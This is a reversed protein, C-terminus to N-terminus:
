IGVQWTKDALAKYGKDVVNMKIPENRYRFSDCNILRYKSDGAGPVNWYDFAVDCPRFNDIIEFMESEWRCSALSEERFEFRRGNSDDFFSGKNWISLGSGTNPPLETAIAIADTGIQFARGEDDKLYLLTLFGDPCYPTAESDGLSNGYSDIEQRVIRYACEKFCLSRAYGSKGREGPRRVKKAAYRRTVPHNAAFGRPYRESIGHLSSRGEQFEKFVHSLLRM